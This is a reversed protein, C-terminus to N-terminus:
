GTKQSDYGDRWDSFCIGSCFMIVDEINNGIYSSLEDGKFHMIEKGCWVCTKVAEMLETM